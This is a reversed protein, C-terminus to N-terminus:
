RALLEVAALDLLVLELQVLQAPLDLAVGRPGRGAQPRAARGAGGTASCVHTVRGRASSTISCTVIVCATPRTCADAQPASRVHRCSLRIDAKLTSASM